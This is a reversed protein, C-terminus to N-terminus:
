KMLYHSLDFYVVVWRIMMLFMGVLIILSSWSLVDAISGETPSDGGPAHFIKKILPAVMYFHVLKGFILAIILVIFVFTTKM